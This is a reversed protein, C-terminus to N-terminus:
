VQQNGCPLFDTQLAMWLAKCVESVVKSVTSSGLRFSVAVTQQNAGSALIRLAVALRQAADVPMRHTSQHNLHPLVRRLLKDFKGASMRFYRFHTEEDMDRMPGVLSNFEGTMLRPVNLPRVYWRRVIRRLRERRLKEILLIQTEIDNLQLLLRDRESAM